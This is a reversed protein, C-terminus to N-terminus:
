NCLYLKGAAQMEEFVLVSKEWQGGNKCALLLTEYIITDPELGNIKMEDFLQAHMCASSCANENDRGRPRVKM